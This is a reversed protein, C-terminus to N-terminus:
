PECYTMRGDELEILALNRRQERECSDFVTRVDWAHFWGKRKTVVQVGYLDETSAHESRTETIGVRRM